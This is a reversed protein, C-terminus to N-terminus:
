SVDNGRFFTYLFAHQAPASNAFLNPIWCVEIQKFLINLTFNASNKQGTEVSSLGWM